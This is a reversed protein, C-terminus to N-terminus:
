ASEQNLPHNLMYESLAANVLTHYSRTGASAMLYNVISEDLLVQLPRKGPEIEVGGFRRRARQIQEETIEPIDSFDIDEDSMADIRAWDTESTGPSSANNM